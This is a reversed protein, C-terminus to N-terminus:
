GAAPQWGGHNWKIRSQINYLNTQMELLRSVARRFAFKEEQGTLKSLVATVGAPGSVPAVGAAQAINVRSRTDEVATEFQLGEFDYYVSGGEEESGLFLDDPSTDATCFLRCKANYLEDVMTIFRRAKDRQQKSLLPVDELFITHFHSALAMYDTPGLLADCLDDFRCRVAGPAVTDVKLTRGFMVPVEVPTRAHVAVGIERCYDQVRRDFLESTAPGLPYFYSQTALAESAAAGVAEPEKLNLRRFDGETSLETPLCAASLKQTMAHFTDAHFGNDNLEEPKRNSTAVIVANRECLWSFVGMLAIATFGDPVQLEDFCILKPTDPDGDLDDFLEMTAKAIVDSYPKTSEDEHRDEKQLMRSRRRAALLAKRAWKDLQAFSFNGDKDEGKKAMVEQELRHVKQHLEMMGATFHIRRSQAIHKSAESYFMDMFMTKGSGVSGHLYLGPPVKPAAPPPGLEEAVLREFDQKQKLASAKAEEQPRGAQGEIWGLLGGEGGAGEAPPEADLRSEFEALLAARRSRYAAKREAFAAFSGAFGRLEGLVADLKRVVAEQRRDAVLHRERVLRRYRALLVGALDAGPEEEAPRASSGRARAGGFLEAGPLSRGARRGLVRYRALLPVRM